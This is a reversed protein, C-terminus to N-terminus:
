VGKANNIIEVIEAKLSEATDVNVADLFEIFRINVERAETEGLNNISDVSIGGPRLIEGFFIDRDTPAFMGLMELLPGEREKGMELTIEGEHSEGGDIPLELSEARTM